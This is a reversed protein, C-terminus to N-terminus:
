IEGKLLFEAIRHVAVESQAQWGLADRPTTLISKALDAFLPMHREM